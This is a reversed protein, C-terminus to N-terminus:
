KAVHMSETRYSLWARKCIRKSIKPMWNKKHSSRVFKSETALTQTPYKPPSPHISFFSYIVIELDDLM